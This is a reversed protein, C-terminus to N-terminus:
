RRKKLDFRFKADDSFWMPFNTNWINNYLNFYLDQKGTPNNWELLHPGFIAALPPDLNEIEVDDNRVGFFCHLNKMGLCGEPSIWRGMKLIEFGTFKAM